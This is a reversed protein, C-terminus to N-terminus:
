AILMTFSFAVALTWTLTNVVSADVVDNEESFSVDEQGGTNGSDEGGENGSDEGGENGPETTVDAKNGPKTTVDAKNGSKTTKSESIKTTLKEATSAAITTAAPTTRTTTTTTTTTSATTTTTTVCDVDEPCKRYYNKNLAKGTNKAEIVDKINRVQWHDGCAKPCQSWETYEIVCDMPLNTCVKDVLKGMVKRLEALGASADRGQAIITNDDGDGSAMLRLEDANINGFGVSVVTVTTNRDPLNQLKEAQVVLRCSKGDRKGDSDECRQTTQNCTYGVGKCKGDTAQGDTFVLVFNLSDRENELLEVTQELAKGTFTLSNDYRMADINERAEKKGVFVGSAPYSTIAHSFSRIAFENIPFVQILDKAFNKVEPFNGYRGGSRPSDLSGSTDILIVMKSPVNSSTCKSVDVCVNDVKRFGSLCDGCEFSDGDCSQKHEKKCANKAAENCPNPQCENDKEVYGKLCTGCKDSGRTCTDRNLARCSNKFEDTCPDQLGM